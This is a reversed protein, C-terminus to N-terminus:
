TSSFDPALFSPVNWPFVRRRFGSKAGRSMRTKSNLAPQVMLRFFGLAAIGHAPFAARWQIFIWRTKAGAPNMVTVGAPGLTTEQSLTETTGRKLVIGPRLNHNLRMARRKGGSQGSVPWPKPLSFGEEVNTRDSDGHQDTTNQGKVRSM